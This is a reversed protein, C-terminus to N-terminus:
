HHSKRNTKRNRKPNKKTHRKSKRRYGGRYPYPPLLNDNPSNDDPGRSRSRPRGKGFGARYNRGYPTRGRKPTYRNVPPKFPSPSAPTAPAINNPSAPVTNQSGLGNTNPGSTTNPSGLGNTNPGSNNEESNTKEEDEERLEEVYMKWPDQTAVLPEEWRGNQETM